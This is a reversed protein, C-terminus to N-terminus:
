DGTEEKEIEEVEQMAEAYTDATCYVVSNVYVTYHEREHKIKVEM